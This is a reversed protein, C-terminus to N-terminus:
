EDSAIVQQGTLERTPLTLFLSGLRIASQRQQRSAWATVSRQPSECDNTLPFPHRRVAISADKSSVAGALFGLSPAAGIPPIM